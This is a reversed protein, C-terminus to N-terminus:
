LADLLRHARPANLGLRVPQGAGFDFQHRSRESQTISAIVGLTTTRREVLQVQRRHRSVRLIDIKDQHAASWNGVDLTRQYPDQFGQEALWRRPPLVLGRHGSQGSELIARSETPAEEALSRITPFLNAGFAGSPILPCTAQANVAIRSECIM